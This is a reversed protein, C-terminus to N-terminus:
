TGWEVRHVHGRIELLNGDWKSIELDKGTIMMKVREALLEIRDPGFARIRKVDHVYVLQESMAWVHPQDRWWMVVAGTKM